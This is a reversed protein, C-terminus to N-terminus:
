ADIDLENHPMEYNLFPIIGELQQDINFLEPEQVKSGSSHRLPDIMAFNGNIVDGLIDKGNNFDDSRGEGRVEDSKQLENM